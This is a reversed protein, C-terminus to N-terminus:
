RTSRSISAPRGELQVPHGVGDDDMFAGAPSAMFVINHAGLLLNAGPVFPINFQLYLTKTEVNVGDSGLAGGGSPNNRTGVNSGFEDGSAGGGLGYTIDGIEVGWVVKANKDASEVNTFLRFRQFYYADSDKSNASNVPIQLPFLDSQKGTDTFDTMNDWVLGFVRMQGGFTVTFNPAQAAAPVALGILVAAVAVVLGLRKM